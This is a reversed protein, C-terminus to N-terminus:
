LAVRLLETMPITGAEQHIWCQKRTMLRALSLSLIGKEMQFTLPIMKSRGFDAMGRPNILMKINQHRDKFRFWGQGLAGPKLLPFTFNPPISPTLLHLSSHCLPKDYLQMDLHTTQASFFPEFGRKSMCCSHAVYHCQHLFNFMQLRIASELGQAQRIRWAHTIHHHTFLGKKHPLASVPGVISLANAM